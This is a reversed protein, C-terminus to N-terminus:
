APHRRDVDSASMGRVPDGQSSLARIRSMGVESLPPRGDPGTRRRGAAVCPLHAVSRHDQYQAARASRGQASRPPFWTASAFDDLRTLHRAQAVGGEFLESSSLQKARYLAETGSDRFPGIVSSM